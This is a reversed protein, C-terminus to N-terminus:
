DDAKIERITGDSGLQFAKRTKPRDKHIAKIVFSKRDTEITFRYPCGESDIDDSVWKFDKDNKLEDFTAYQGYHNKYSKEAVSIHCLVNKANSEASMSAMAGLTCTAAFLVGGIVIAGTVPGISASEFFNTKSSKEQKKEMKNIIMELQKQPVSRLIEKEIEPADLEEIAEERNFLLKLKFDEDRCCRKIIDELNSQSM